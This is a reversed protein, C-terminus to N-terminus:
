GAAKEVLLDERVIRGPVGDDLQQSFRAGVDNQRCRRHVVRGVMLRRAQQHAIGTKRRARGIVLRFRGGDLSDGLEIQHVREAADVAIAVQDIGIEDDVDGVLDRDLADHELLVLRLAGPQLGVM